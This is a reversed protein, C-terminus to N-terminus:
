RNVGNGSNFNAKENVLKNEACFKDLERLTTFEQREYGWGEYKSRTFPTDRGPYAVKGTRPNRYVIARDTTIAVGPKQTPARNGIDWRIHLNCSGCNECKMEHIKNTDVAADLMDHACAACRLDHISLRITGKITYEM